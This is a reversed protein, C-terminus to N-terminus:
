QQGGMRAAFFILADLLLGILLTVAVIVVLELSARIARNMM